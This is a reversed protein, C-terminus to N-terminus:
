FKVVYVEEHDSIGPIVEVKNILTISNAFFLDLTSQSSETIYTHKSVMQELAQDYSIDLLQKCQKTNSAKPRISSTEWNIGSLNFDGGLWSSCTPVRNSGTSPDIYM